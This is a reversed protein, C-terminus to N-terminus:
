KTNKTSSIMENNQKTMFALAKRRRNHSSNNVWTSNSDKNNVVCEIPWRGKNM